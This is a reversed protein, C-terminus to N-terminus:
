NLTYILTLLVDGNAPCVSVIYSGMSCTNTAFSSIQTDINISLLVTGIISVSSVIVYVQGKTDM